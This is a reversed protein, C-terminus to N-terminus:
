REVVYWGGRDFGTVRAGSAMLGGLVDRVALRWEKAQALSRTRLAEVDSPVAVLLTAARTSGPVPRGDDGRGLAITAGNRQLADVDAPQWRERSAAIARAGLLDWQILLRDTDDNGNIGDQMGGYFNPLYESPRSGLKVLNFYANRAVLPDFTWEIAQVGRSLAWARQHLKLAYGVHRGLVTASVGAIHSHLAGAAPPSFFGVCAGVLKAGDFAGAVYNGAKSLARLLETNIPPNANPRWIQDYLNEVDALQTLETLERVVVGSARAAHAARAAADAALKATGASAGVSSVRTVSGITGADDPNTM